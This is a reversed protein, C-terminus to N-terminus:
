QKVIIFIDFKVVYAVEGSDTWAIMLSPGQWYIIQLLTPYGPPQATTQSVFISMHVLHGSGVMKDGVICAFCQGWPIYEYGIIYNDMFKLHSVMQTGTQREDGSTNPIWGPCQQVESLNSYIHAFQLCVYM